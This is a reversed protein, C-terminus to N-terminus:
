GEDLRWLVMFYCFLCTLTEDQTWFFSFFSIFYMPFSAIAFGSGILGQCAHLATLNAPTEHKCSTLILLLLTSSNNCIFRLPFLFSTAKGTNAMPCKPCTSVSSLYYLRPSIRDNLHSEFSESGCVLAMSPSDSTLQTRNTGCQM